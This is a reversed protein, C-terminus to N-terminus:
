ASNNDELEITCLFFSLTAKAAVTQETIATIRRFVMAETYGAHDVPDHIHDIANVAKGLLGTITALQAQSVKLQYIRDTFVIPNGGSSLAHRHLSGDLARELTLIVKHDPTRRIAVYEATPPSDDGLHIHAQVSAVM